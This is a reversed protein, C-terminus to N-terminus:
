PGGILLPEGEPSHDASWGANAQYQVNWWCLGDQRVPGAIVDAVDGRQLYDITDAAVKGVYGPSRRVRVGDALATAIKGAAIGPQCPIAAGQAGSERLFSTPTPIGPAYTAIPTGAGPQVFTPSSQGPMIALVVIAALMGLVLLLPAAWGSGGSPEQQKPPQMVVPEGYNISKDDQEDSM